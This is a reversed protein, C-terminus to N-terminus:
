SILTHCDARVVPKTSSMNSGVQKSLRSEDRGDKGFPANEGKDRIGAGAKGERRLSKVLVKGKVLVTAANFISFSPATGAGGSERWGWDM